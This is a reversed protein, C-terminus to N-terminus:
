IMNLKSRVIESITKSDAKGKLLPMLFGMLRGMDKITKANSIEIQQNIINTLEENSLQEPQYKKFIDQEIMEKKALEIRNGKNFMEISETRQKIGKAIVDLVLDDTIEKNLDLAKRQIDSDLLRLTNTVFKTNYKMSSKIDERIKEYIM